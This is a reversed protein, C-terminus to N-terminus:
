WWWAHRELLLIPPKKKGACVLVYPLDDFLNEEIIHHRHMMNISRSFVSTCSDTDVTKVPWVRNQVVYQVTQVIYYLQRKIKRGGM